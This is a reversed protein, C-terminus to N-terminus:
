GKRIVEQRQMSWVDKKGKNKTIPMVSWHLLSANSMAAKGKGKGKGKDYAEMDLWHPLSAHQFVEKSKGKSAANRQHGTNCHQATGEDESDESNTPSWLIQERLNM